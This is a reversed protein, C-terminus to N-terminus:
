MVAAAQAKGEEWGIQTALRKAVDAAQKAVAMAEFRKAIKALNIMQRAQFHLDGSRAAAAAAEKFCAAAEQSEKAQVHLAGLNALVRAEAYPYAARRWADLAKAYLQKAQAVDKLALLAGALRTEVRARFDIEGHWRALDQAADANTLAQQFAAAAGKMDGEAELAEGREAWCLQALPTGQARKLAADLAEAARARRAESRLVRATSLSLEPSDINKAQALALGEDVLQRAMLPEGSAIANAAARALTEVKARAAEIPTAPNELLVGLADAWGRLASVVERPSRRKLATEVVGRWLQLSRTADKAATLHEAIKAADPQAGSARAAEMLVAAMKSQVEARRPSGLQLGVRLYRDSAPAWKRGGLARVMRSGVLRQYAAQPTNPLVANLVAGDISDGALCVAEFLRAADPWLAKVREAALEDDDYAPPDSALVYAGSRFRILGKDALLHLWDIMLGPLGRGKRHVAEILKESVRAGGLWASVMAAAEPSQLGRLDVTPVQPFREAAFATDCLGVALERQAPRACLERFADITYPDFAELGDFVLLVKRGAAGINLVARLAYVAQGPTFPQPVHRIGAIVLAAELETPPLKLAELAQPLKTLRQDKQVGCVNCLLEGIGAYPQGKLSNLGRAIGVVAQQHRGRVNLEQAVTSRGAGSEGTVIVPAVIGQSLSTLRKDLSAFVTERGYLTQVNHLVPRRDGVEVVEPGADAVTVVDQVDIAMQRDAVIKGAGAKAALTRSRLALDGEIPEDKETTTVRGFVAAARLTAGLVEDAVSERMCLAAYLARVGPVLADEGHFLFTIGDEDVSDVVGEHDIGIALARSLANARAGSEVPARLVEVHLMVLKRNGAELQSRQAVMRQRLHTALPVKLATLALELRHPPPPAAQPAPAQGPVPERAAAPMKGTDFAFFSSVEAKVPPPVSAPEPPPWADAAPRPASPPPEITGTVIDPPPWVDGHPAAPADAPPWDEFAGPIANAREISKKLAVALEKVNQYRHARDKALAKLVAESLAPSLDNRLSQPSPPTDKLHASILKQLSDSVFPPRGTLLEFLVCGLAYIDTRVDLSDGLAQEPALYAPTGVVMGLQTLMGGPKHTDAIRAIGFDLIKARGDGSVLVNSPKLDRHVLGKQHAHHVAEAIQVVMRVRAEISPQRKGWAHLSEGEVLEMALYPRDNASAHSGAEFIQAIGPHQLRGLAEAEVAFRARAEAGGFGPALVKLAVDRVPKDQVARYVVGMGGRGLVGIIRFAGIREPLPEEARGLQSRVAALRDEGLFSASEDARLLDEVEARLAADDGCEHRVLADREAGTLECALAFIRHVSETRSSM